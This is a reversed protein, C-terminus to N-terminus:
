YVVKSRLALCPESLLEELERREEHEQRESVLDRRSPRARWQGRPFAKKLAEGKQFRTYTAGTKGKIVIGGSERGEHLESKRM